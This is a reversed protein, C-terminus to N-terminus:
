LIRDSFTRLEVFCSQHVPKGDRTYASGNASLRLTPQAYNAESYNQALLGHLHPKAADFETKCQGSLKESEQEIAASIKEPTGIVTISWSM